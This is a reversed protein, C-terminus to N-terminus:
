KWMAFPLASLLLVFIPNWYYSGGVGHTFKKLIPGIVDSGALASVGLAVNSVFLWTSLFVSIAFIVRFLRAPGQRSFGTPFDRVFLWMFCP